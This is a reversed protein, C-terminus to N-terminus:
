VIFVNININLFAVCGAKLFCKIVNKNLLFNFYLITVHFMFFMFFYFYEFTVYFFEFIVYCYEFVVYIPIM